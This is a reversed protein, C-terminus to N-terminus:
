GPPPQTDRVPLTYDCRPYTSCGWFGQGKNPGRTATRLVMESECRPCFKRADNLLDAVTPDFRADSDELLRVVDSEDRLEIGYETAKQIADVTFGKMAILMGKSFGEGAMAGRLERVTKVGVRWAQWHKCQVATRVGDRELILDVGDDAKAGGRREVAYGKKAFLLAVLKEFQFWDIARLRERFDRASAPASTNTGGITGYDLGESTNWGRDHDRPLSGSISRGNTVTDESTSLGGLSLPDCLKRGHVGAAWWWASVSPQPSSRCPRSFGHFVGSTRLLSFGLWAVVVAFVGLQGAIAPLSDRSRRYRRRSM